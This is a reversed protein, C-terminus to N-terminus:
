AKAAAGGLRRADAGCACRKCPEEKEKEQAARAAVAAAAVGSTGWARSSGEEAASDDLEADKAACGGPGGSDAVGDDDNDDDDDDDDNDDGCSAAPRVGKAARALAHAGDLVHRACFLAARAALPAHPAHPASAPANAHVGAAHEEAAHMAEDAAHLAVHVAGACGSGGRSRSSRRPLKCELQLSASADGSNEIDAALASLLARLRERLARMAAADHGDDCTGILALAPLLRGEQADALLSWRAPHAHQRPAGPEASAEALLARTRAVSGRAAALSAAAAADATAECTASGCAPRRLAASGRRAAEAAAARLAGSARQPAVCMEVAFFLALGLLNQEIRTYAFARGETVANPYFLIIYPTYQAVMAAYANAPNGARIPGWLAVWLAIPGLLPALPRSLLGHPPPPVNPAVATDIALLVATFCVGAATGRLRLAATRFPGGFFVGDRAGVIQVAIAAWQGSGSTLQGLAAAGVVTATMKLAYLVRLRSPPRASARIAALLPSAAFFRSLLTATTHPHASASSSSSPAHPTTPATAADAADAAAAAFARLFFLFADRELLL